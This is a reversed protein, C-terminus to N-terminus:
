LIKSAIEEIIEQSIQFRKRYEDYCKMVNQQKKFANQLTKSWRISSLCNHFLQYHVFYNRTQRHQYVYFTYSKNSTDVVSFTFCVYPIPKKSSLTSGMTCDILEVKTTVINTIETESTM